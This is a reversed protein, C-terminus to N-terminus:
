GNYRKVQQRLRARPVYTAFDVADEAGPVCVSVVPIDFEYQTLNVIVIQSCGVNTLCDLITQLEETDDTCTLGNDSAFVNVPKEDLWHEWNRGQADSCPSYHNEDFHDGCGSMLAARGQLAETLARRLAIVPSLHAGGGTSWLLHPMRGPDRELVRAIFCPIHMDTTVDWVAPCLDAGEIRQLLETTLRDKVTHPDIRTAAQSSRPRVAFLTRADREIVEYLGHLTAEMLTNGAATGTSEKRFFGGWHPAPQRDMFTVAEFPLWLQESSILDLGEAWLIETDADFSKGAVRLLMTTSLLRRGKDIEAMTGLVVPISPHEAHYSEVAEMAASVRAESLTLGKGYRATSGRANPRVASVVPVGIRDFGTIDALRVVGMRPLHVAIQALTEEPPRTRISTGLDIRPLRDGSFIIRLNSTEQPSSTCSRSTTIDTM